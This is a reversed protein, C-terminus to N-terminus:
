PAAHHVATRDGAAVTALQWKDFAFTASECYVIMYSDLEILLVLRYTEYEYNPRYYFRVM